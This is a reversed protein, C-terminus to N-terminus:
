KLSDKPINMLLAVGSGQNGSRQIGIVPFYPRHIITVAEIILIYKMFSPMLSEPKQRGSLIM